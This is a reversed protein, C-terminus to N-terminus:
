KLLLMKQNSIFDNVQLSYIYMGSPLNSANFDVEFIGAPKVENVLVMVENGLLDFVKLGVFNNGPIQFRIKTVPNFPNPYNQLLELQLPLNDSLDKVSTIVNTTDGYLTDNIVCGKLYIDGTADGSGRRFLGLGYALIDVYRVLVSPSGITDTTDSAYYYVYSKFTTEIGFLEDEWVENVRAMEYGTGGIGGSYDYLVWQHNQQANLKYILYNESGPGGGGPGFVNFSSDIMYYSTDLFNYPYQVPNINRAYQTIHIIGQFDISDSITFNQVTDVYSPSEYYFYEWMDGTQHPFFKLPDEEQALSYLPVLM